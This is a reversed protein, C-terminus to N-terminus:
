AGVQALLAHVHDNPDLEYEASRIVGDADVVFTSRLPGTM